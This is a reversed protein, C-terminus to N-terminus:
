IKKRLLRQQLINVDSQQQQALFEEKFNKNEQQLTLIYEKMKQREMEMDNM